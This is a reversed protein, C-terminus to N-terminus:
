LWRRVRSKYERYEAGFKGELYAEERVIVWEVLAGILVPLLFFSWASNAYLAIGSYWFCFGLYMPNRTFRYPGSQVIATTPKFPNPTTRAKRMQIVAPIGIFFGLFFVAIGAIRATAQDMIPLPYGLNLLVGLIIASLLLLPPNIVNAHDGPGSM